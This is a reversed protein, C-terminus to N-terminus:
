SAGAMSRVNEHLRGVDVADVVRTPPGHVLRSVVAVSSSVPPYAVKAVPGSLRSETKGPPALSISVLGATRASVTGVIQVFARAGAVTLPGSAPRVGRFGSHLPGPPLDPLPRFATRRQTLLGRVGQGRHDSRGTCSSGCFSQVTGRPAKSHGAEPQRRLRAAAGGHISGNRGRQAWRVEPRPRRCTVQGAPYPLSATDEAAVRQLM